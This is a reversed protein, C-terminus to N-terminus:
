SKFIESVWAALNNIQSNYGTQYVNQVFSFKDANEFWVLYANKNKCFTVADSQTLNETFFQICSDRYASWGQLLFLGM